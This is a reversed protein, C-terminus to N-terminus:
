LVASSLKAKFLLIPPFQFSFFFTLSVSVNVKLMTSLCSIDWIGACLSILWIVCYFMTAMFCFFLWVGSALDFYDSFNSLFFCLLHQAFERDLFYGGFLYLLKLQMIRPIWHALIHFHAKLLLSLPLCQEMSHIWCNWWDITDPQPSISALPQCRFPSAPLHIAQIACRSRWLLLCAILFVFLYIFLCCLLFM